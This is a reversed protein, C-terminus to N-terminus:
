PYMNGFIKTFYETVNVILFLLRQVSQLFDKSLDEITFNLISKKWFVRIEALHKHFLWEAVFYNSQVSIFSRTMYLYFYGMQLICSSKTLIIM